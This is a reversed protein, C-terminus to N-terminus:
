IMRSKQGLWPLVCTKRLVLDSEIFLQWDLDVQQQVTISNWVTQQILLPYFDYELLWSCCSNRNIVCADSFEDPTETQHTVSASFNMILCVYHCLPCHQKKKGPRRYRGRDGRMGWKTVLVKLEASGGGLWTDGGNVTTKRWLVEDAKQARIAAAAAAM